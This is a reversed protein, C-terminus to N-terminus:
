QKWLLTTLRTNCPFMPLIIPCAFDRNVLLTTDETSALSFEKLNLVTNTQNYLLFCTAPEKETEQFRRSGTMHETEIYIYVCIDKSPNSWSLNYKYLCLRIVSGSELKPLLGEAKFPNTVMNHSLLSWFALVALSFNLKSKHHLQKTKWSALPEHKNGTCASNCSYTITYMKYQILM